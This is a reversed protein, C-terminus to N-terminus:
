VINLHFLKMNFGQQSMSFSVKIGEVCTPGYIWCSRRWTQTDIQDEVVVPISQLNNPVYYCYIAYIANM